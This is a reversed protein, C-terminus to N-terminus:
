GERSAPPSPDGMRSVSTGITQEIIDGWARSQRDVWSLLDRRMSVSLDSLRDPSRLMAAIAAAAAAPQELNMLPVNSIFPLGTAAAGTATFPTGFSFLSAYAQAMLENPKKTAGYLNLPNIPTTLPVYLCRTNAGFTAM